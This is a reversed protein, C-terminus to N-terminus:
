RGGQAHLEILREVFQKNKEEGVCDRVIGERIVITLLAYFETDSLNEVLRKYKAECADLDASTAKLASARKELAARAAPSIPGSPNIFSM